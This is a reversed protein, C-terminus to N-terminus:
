NQNKSTYNNQHNYFNNQYRPNISIPNIPLSPNHYPDIQVIPPYVLNYIQNFRQTLTSLSQELNSIRIM